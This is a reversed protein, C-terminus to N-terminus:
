RNELELATTDRHVGTGMVRPVSAHKTAASESAIKRQSKLEALADLCAERGDFELTDTRITGGARWLVLILTYKM